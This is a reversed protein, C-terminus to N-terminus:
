RMLKALSQADLTHGAINGQYADCGLTKLFDLQAQTEVGEAVVKLRLNKALNIIARVIASDNVDRPLDEIFGSNIKLKNISFRKLHNLSSYDNGFDDIALSVGLEHLQDLTNAVERVDQLIAKETLEIELQAPKIGHRALAAAVSQALSARRFQFASLNIAIPVVSIGNKQWADIQRCTAELVWNGILHIVDSEEELSVFSESFLVGQESHNWRVLVEAGILKNDRALFQPQFHLRLEDSELAHHLQNALLLREAVPAVLEKTFFEFRNRGGKKSYYMAADANRILDETSLGDDPYVSIGVSASMSAEKGEVVFPQEFTGLVKTAVLAAESPDRLASLVILYEDGSHRCVTDTERVCGRLRAAVTQLLIDGARHGYTDNVEKFHDLDIFLLAVRSKMRKASALSQQLRDQFLTRNPLGTLLDHHALFRVRADMDKRQSVDETVFLVKIPEGDQNLLADGKTRLWRESNDSDKVRYEIDLNSTGNLCEDLAQKFRPRDEGHMSQLLVDFEVDPNDGRIGFLRMSMDSCHVTTSRVDYETTGIEAFTLALKERDLSSKLADLTTRNLAEADRLKETAALLQNSASQLRDETADLRAHTLALEAELGPTRNQAAGPRRAPTRGSPADVKATKRPKSQKPSSM